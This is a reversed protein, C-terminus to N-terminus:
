PPREAQNGALSRHLFLGSRPLDSLSQHNWNFFAAACAFLNFICLMKVLMSRTSIAKLPSALRASINVLLPVKSLVALSVKFSIQSNLLFCKLAVAPHKTLMASNIIHIHKCNIVHSIISCGMSAIVPIVSPLSNISPKPLLFVWSSVLNKAHIAIPLFELQEPSASSVLM